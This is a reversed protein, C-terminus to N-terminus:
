DYRGTPRMSEYGAGFFNEYEENLLSNVCTGDTLTSQIRFPKRHYVYCQKDVIICVSFHYSGMLDDLVRTHVFLSVDSFVSTQNIELANM